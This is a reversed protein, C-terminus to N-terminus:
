IQKGIKWVCQELMPSYSCDVLESFAPEKKDLLIRYLASMEPKQCLDTQRAELAATFVNKAASMSQCLRMFAAEIIFLHPALAQGFAVGENLSSLHVLQSLRVAM